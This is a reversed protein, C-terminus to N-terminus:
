NEYAKELHGIHASRHVNPPHIESSNANSPRVRGIIYGHFARGKRRRHHGSPRIEVENEIPFVM